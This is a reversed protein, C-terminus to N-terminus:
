CGHRMSRRGPISRTSALVRERAVDETTRGAEVQKLAATIQAETNQSKSV